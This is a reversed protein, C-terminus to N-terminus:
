RIRGTGPKGLSGDVMKEGDFALTVDLDRTTAELSAMVIPRSIPMRTEMPVTMDM